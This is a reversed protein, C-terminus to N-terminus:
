MREPAAIGLLSLGTKMIESTALVLRLRFDEEKTGIVRYKEYFQNFMQALEFLYASLIHPEYNLGSAEVVNAFRGLHRILTREEANPEAATLAKKVNLSQKTLISRTRVYVYQLYPGSDGHLNVSEIPDFIINNGVKQKLFAYKIAALSVQEDEVNNITMNAQKASEIVEEALLINGKRSSMKGQGKLTVQGHTVHHTNKALKPEFQAIATLVVKMYETIDNGTIIISRDFHYDRWKALSLGIDKTEYTPLGASNIFVRTHLGYKEGRFVVAGESQEFIGHKLQEKVTSIGLATNASEPYYKDFQTGLRKYFEDFYDYSWQRATWYIQALMTQHDQDEQLEYIRKNLVIIEEKAKSNEEYAKTGKIYAASLWHPRDTKNINKLKEPHEGGLTQLIGWMARAVHLGVDGGFNVRKVKAGLSTLLNAIADGVISTYLHGVHLNKFPNPDSYEVVVTQNSLLQQPRYESEIIKQLLNTFYDSKLWFNMFGGATDIKELMPHKIEASLEKSIQEPSRKLPAALKFPLNTAFDGFQPDPYVLEIDLDLNYTKKLATKLATKVEEM